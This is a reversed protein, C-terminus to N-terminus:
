ELLKENIKKKENNESNAILKTEGKMDFLNM